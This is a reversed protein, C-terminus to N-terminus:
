SKKRYTDIIKYAKETDSSIEDGNQTSGITGGTFVFLIKM